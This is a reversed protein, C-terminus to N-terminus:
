GALQGIQDQARALGKRAEKLADLERELERIRMDRRELQIRLDANQETLFVVREQAEMGKRYAEALERQLDSVPSMDGTKNDGLATNESPQMNIRQGSLPSMDGTKASEPKTVYMPGVGSLLWSIEVGLRACIQAITNGKPNREGYEYNALARPSIGIKKAFEDRSERGRVMRLRTALTDKM